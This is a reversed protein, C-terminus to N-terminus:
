NAVTQARNQGLTHMTSLVICRLTGLYPSVAVNLTGTQLEKCPTIKDTGKNHRQTREQSYRQTREQIGRSAGKDTETHKRTPRHTHDAETHVRSWRQTHGVEGRHAGQDAETQATYDAEAYM